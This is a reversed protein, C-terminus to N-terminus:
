FRLYAWELFPPLPQSLIHHIFGMHIFFDLFADRHLLTKYQHILTKLFGLFTVQRKREPFGRMKWSVTGQLRKVGWLRASQQQKQGGWFRRIGQKSTEWLTIIQTYREGCTHLPWSATENETINTNLEYACLPCGPVWSHVSGLPVQTAWDISCRIRSKPEPWSRM